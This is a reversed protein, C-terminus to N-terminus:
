AYYIALQLSVKSVAMKSFLQDAATVQYCTSPEVCTFVRGRLTLLHQLLNRWFTEQSGSSPQSSAITRITHPFSLVELIGTCPNTKTEYGSGLIDCRVRTPTANVPAYLLARQCSVM